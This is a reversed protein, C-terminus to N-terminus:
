IRLFVKRSYLFRAWLVVLTLGAGALMIESYAGAAEAISGGVFCEAINRFPIFRASLYIALANSGIWLFPTGWARWGKIDIVYYFLGLLILSYGGAVLVFTSTWIKKIVPFQLGWLYGVVVCAIGSGILYVVKRKPAVRSNKMLLGAFVGMLASCFAPITSLLGEPDWNGDHLRGPLFHKDVYNSWNLEPEFSPASQGPIPVFTMLAWYGALITVFLVALGRPKLHLFALGAVLYCLAIRQLVGMIRIEAFPASLGGSFLIGLLFLIVTRRVLRVHTKAMGATAVMKKLSYVAAVGMMFVFLPFIMDFFVFGDWARHTLQSKLFGLVGGPRLKELGGVLSTAGVIWFMDFGRLIDLSLLREHVAAPAAEVDAARVATSM